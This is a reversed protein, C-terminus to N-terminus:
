AHRTEIPDLCLFILYCPFSQSVPRMMHNCSKAITEPKLCYFTRQELLFGLTFLQGLESGLDFNQTTIALLMNIIVSLQVAQKCKNLSQVSKVTTYCIFLSLLM